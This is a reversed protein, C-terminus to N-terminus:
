KCLHEFAISAAVESKGCITYWHVAFAKALNYYADWMNYKPEILVVGMERTKIKVSEHASTVLRHALEPTIGMKSLYDHMCEAHMKRGESDIYVEAKLCKVKHMATYECMHGEHAAMAMAIKLDENDDAWEELAELLMSGQLDTMHKDKFIDRYRM